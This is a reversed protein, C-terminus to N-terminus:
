DSFKIRVEASRPLAQCAIIWGAHLDAQSLVHNHHLEVNGELLTCVCTGCRGDRCSSPPQLGSAEMTALLTQSPEASMTHPVGELTVTLQTLM